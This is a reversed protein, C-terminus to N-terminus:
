LMDVRKLKKHAIMGDFKMGFGTTETFIGSNKRKGQLGKQKLQDGYGNIRFHRNM